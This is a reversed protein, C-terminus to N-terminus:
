TAAQGSTTARLWGPLWYAALSAASVAIGVGIAGPVGIGGAVLATALLAGAPAGFMPGLLVVSFVRGQLEARTRQQRL